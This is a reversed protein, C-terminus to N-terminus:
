PCSIGELGQLLRDYVYTGTQGGNEAWEFRMSSCSPFSVTAQGWPAIMVQSTQFAAGFQGGTSIYMPVTATTAGANFDVSGFIWRQQGLYYTYWTVFLVKRANLRGIEILVGEGNRLPLYYSGSHKGTIPLLGVPTGYQTSDFAPVLVSGDPGFNSEFELTFAFDDDFVVTNDFEHLVFTTTTSLNGCFSTGVGDNPNIDLFLDDTEIGGIRIKLESGCVFPTGSLPTFTLLLQGDNASCLARWATVRVSQGAGTAVDMSVSPGTVATPLPTAVCGPTIEKLALPNASKALELQLQANRLGREAQSQAENALASNGSALILLSGVLLCPLKTAFSKM